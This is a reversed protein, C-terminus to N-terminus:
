ERMGCASVARGDPDARWRPCRAGRLRVEKKRPGKETPRSYWRPENRRERRTDLWLGRGIRQM